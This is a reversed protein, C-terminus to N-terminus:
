YVLTQSALDLLGSELSLKSDTINTQPAGEIPTLLEVEIYVPGTYCDPEKIYPSVDFSKEGSGLIYTFSQLPRLCTLTEVFCPGELGQVELM